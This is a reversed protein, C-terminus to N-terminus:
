EFCIDGGHTHGETHIDRRTYTGGHTHEEMHLYRRTCTGKHLSEETHIDGSHISGPNYIGGNMNGKLHM